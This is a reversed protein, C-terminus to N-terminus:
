ETKRFVFENCGTPVTAQKTYICKFGSHKLNNIIEVISAYEYPYGGIWDVVDYFFDMGREQNLPNKGTVFIKAICIIPYFISVMVIKVAKPSICYFKKIIRWVRSSWHSNYVAIVLYGGDTVLSAANYLAIKLNGTHHLVGWSHVIDYKQGAKIMQSIQSITSTDLISGIVVPFDASVGMCEATNTLAEMCKPNIDNGFVKAGAEKALLITIGQGFGIDLFLKDNLGISGFLRMFDCQAALIREKTLAKKSFNVWNQGFDFQM